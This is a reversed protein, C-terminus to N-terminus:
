NWLQFTGLEESLKSRVPVLRSHFQQLLQIHLAITDVTNIHPPIPPISSVTHQDSNLLHTASPTNNCSGIPSASCLCFRIPLELRQSWQYQHVKTPTLNAVSFSNKVCPVSQLKRLAISAPPTIDFSRIKHDLSLLKCLSCTPSKGFTRVNYRSMLASQLTSFSPHSGFSSFMLKRWWHPWHALVQNGSLRVSVICQSQHTILNLLCNKPQLTFCNYRDPLVTHGLGKCYSSFPHPKQEISHNNLERQVRIHWASLM